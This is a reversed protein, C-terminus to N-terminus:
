MENIIRKLEFVEHELNALLADAGAQWEQLASIAANIQDLSAVKYYSQAQPETGDAPSRNVYFEFDFTALVREGQVLAVDARVVGPLDFMQPVLLLDLQNQSYNWAHTGNPLTDYIGGASEGTAPDCACWRVLPSVEAPILWPEGDCLLTVELNRSLADGQKVPIRATVEPHMLDLTIKHTIQM